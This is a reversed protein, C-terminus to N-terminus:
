ALGGVLLHDLESRLTHSGVPVQRGLAEHDLLLSHDRGFHVYPGNADYVKLHQVSFAGEAVVHALHTDQVLADHQLGIAHVEGVRGSTNDGVLALLEDLGTQLGTHLLPQVYICGVVM